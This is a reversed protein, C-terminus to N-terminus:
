VRILQELVKSDILKEAKLRDRNFAPQDLIKLGVHRVNARSFVPVAAQSGYTAHTDAPLSWLCLPARQRLRSLRSLEVGAGGVRQPHFPEATTILM